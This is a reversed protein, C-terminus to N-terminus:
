IANARKKKAEEIKRTLEYDLLVPANGKCCSAGLESCVWDGCFAKAAGIFDV